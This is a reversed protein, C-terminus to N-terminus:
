SIGSPLAVSTEEQPSGDESTGDKPPNPKVDDTMAGMIMGLAPLPVKKLGEENCPVPIVEGTPNGAADLVDEELDWSVLIKELLISAVKESRGADVAAFLEEAVGITMEGPRYELNLTEDEGEEGGPFEVVLPRVGGKLSALKM